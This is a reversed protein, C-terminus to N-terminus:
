HRGPGFEGRTGLSASTTNLGASTADDFIRKVSAQSTTVELARLGARQLLCAGDVTSDAFPFGPGSAGTGTADAALNAAAGDRRLSGVTAYDARDEGLLLSAVMRGAGDVAFDCAPSGPAGAGLGTTTAFLVAKTSDDLHKGEAPCAARSELLLAFAVGVVAGDVAYQIVPSGPAGAGVGTTVGVLGDM